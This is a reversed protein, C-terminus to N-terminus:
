SVQMGSSMGNRNAEQRETEPKETIGRRWEEFAKDARGFLFGELITAAIEKCDRDQQQDEHLYQQYLRLRQMVEGSLTLRLQEVPLKDRFNLKM